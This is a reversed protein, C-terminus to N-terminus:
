EPKLTKLLEIGTVLEDTAVSEEILVRQTEVYTSGFESILTSVITAKSDNTADFPLSNAMKGFTEIMEGLADDLQNKADQVENLSANSIAAKKELLATLKEHNEEPNSPVAPYHVQSDVRDTM